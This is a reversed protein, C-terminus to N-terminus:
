RLAFVRVHGHVGVAVRRGRYVATILLGIPGANDSGAFLSYKPTSCCM